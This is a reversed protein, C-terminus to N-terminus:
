PHGKSSAGFSPESVLATPHAPADAQADLPEPPPAQSLMRLAVPLSEGIGLGARRDLWDGLARTDVRRMVVFGLYSLCLGRAMLTAADGQSLGAFFVLLLASVFLTLVFRPRLLDRLSAWATQALSRRKTDDNSLWSPNRRRSWRQPLKRLWPQLDVRYALLGLGLALAIKLGFAAGLVCALSPAPAGIWNCLAGVFGTLAVFISVGFMLYDVALSLALSFCSLLVAGLLVSVLNWGLLRVPAAFVAGQLFIYAMPRFTNGMPSFAKLMASLLSIRVVGRGRLAKGFTILLLTQLYALAHGKLPVRYAHLTSGLGVETLAAIGAFAGIREADTSSLRRVVMKLASSPDAKDLDVMVPTVVNFENAVEALVSKKVAVVVARCPSALADRFLAAFGMAGLELAGIEDLFCIDPNATSLDERVLATAASLTEDCFDFGRDDPRRRAWPLTERRGIVALRYSSASAADSHRPSEAVCFFGCASWSPATVRRLQELFRTKGKGVSGTVFVVLKPLAM